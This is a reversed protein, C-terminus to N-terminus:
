SITQLISCKTETQPVCNELYVGIEQRRPQSNRLSLTDLLRELEVRQTGRVGNLYGHLIRQLDILDKVV